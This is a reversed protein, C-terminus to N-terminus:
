FERMEIIKILDEFQTKIELIESSSEDVIKQIKENKKKEIKRIMRDPTYNYKNPEKGRSPLGHNKRYRKRQGMTYTDWDIPYNHAPLREVIHQPLLIEKLVYYAKSRPVDCIVGLEPCSFPNEVKHINELTKKLYSAERQSGIGTLKNFIEYLSLTKLKNSIKPNLLNDWTLPYYKRNWSRM